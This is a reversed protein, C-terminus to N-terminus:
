IRINYYFDYFLGLRRYRYRRLPQFRRFGPKERLSRALKRESCDYTAQLKNTLLSYGRNAAMSEKYQNSERIERKKTETLGELQARIALLQNRIESKKTKIFSRLIKDKQIAISRKKVIKKALKQFAENTTYLGQVRQEETQREQEQREEMQQEQFLPEYPNVPQRCQPCPFNMHGIEFFCNTHMPHHCLLQIQPQNVQIPADCRCCNMQEEM